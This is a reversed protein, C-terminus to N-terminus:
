ERLAPKGLFLFLGTIVTAFINIMQGEDLPKGFLIFGNLTGDILFLILAFWSIKWSSKSFKRLMNVASILLIICILLLGVAVINTQIGNAIIPIGTDLNKGKLLLAVGGSGRLLGIFIMLISSIILNIKRNM